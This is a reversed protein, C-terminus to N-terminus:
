ATLTFGEYKEESMWDTNGEIICAEFYTLNYLKYVVFDIQKEIENTNRSIAKEKIVTNALKILSAKYILSIEKKIPFQKADDPYFHLAESLFNIFFWNLLSSNVLCLILKPVM